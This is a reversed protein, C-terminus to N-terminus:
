AARVVESAHAKEREPFILSLVIAMVFALAYSGLRESIGTPAVLLNRWLVTGLSGCILSAYIGARSLKRWFLLLVLAPGFSSGLGSWAYSVLSYITDGMSIAMVFAAVGIALTLSRTLLLMKKSPLRRRALNAYVDESAASSCVLLESDATSMMAAIAGSLLLGALLPTMLGLVMVPLIREYSEALEAAHDGLVGGKVLAFGVIGIMVAGAYALFTWVMAVWRSRRVDRDSRMAMMRTLLQPQGTYGLGWSLGSLIFLVAALGTNGATVTSLAPGAAQLHSSISINNGAAVILGIIPLAVLTVIMLMAQIVDTAVVAIFGGLLCYLTVVFAGIVVGWFPDIGFTENLVTGAGLFQAAIYFIFFFVVIAASLLGVPKEAGPFRRSLLSPLTLAGTREAEARLRRAMGFWIFLVGLVCGVAIWICSVGENFGHGTLGLLLWASEGTARESFALAVGPLKRGGLVFDAETRSKRASWLGIGIVAAIYILFVVLLM